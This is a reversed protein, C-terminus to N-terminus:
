SGIEKSKPQGSNRREQHAAGQEKDCDDSYGMAIEEFTLAYTYYTLALLSNRLEINPSSYAL